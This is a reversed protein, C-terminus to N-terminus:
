EHKIKLLKYEAKWKRVDRQLDKITGSNEEQVKMENNVSVSINRSM